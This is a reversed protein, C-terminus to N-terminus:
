FSELMVAFFNRLTRATALFSDWEEGDVVDIAISRCVSTLDAHRLAIRILDLSLIL